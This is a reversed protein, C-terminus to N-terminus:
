GPNGLGPDALQIGSLHGLERLLFDALQTISLHNATFSHQLSFGQGAEELYGSSNSQCHVTACYLTTTGGIGAIQVHRLQRSMHLRQALLETAVFTSSASDLLARAITSHGDEM